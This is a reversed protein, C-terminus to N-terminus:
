RTLAMHEPQEFLIYYTTMRLFRGQSQRLPFTDHLETLIAKADAESKGSPITIQLYPM